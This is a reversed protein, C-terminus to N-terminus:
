QWQLHPLGSTERGEHERRREDGQPASPGLVPPLACLKADDTQMVHRGLDDHREAARISEDADRLEDVRRVLQTRSRGLHGAHALEFREEGHPGVQHQPELNTFSFLGSM